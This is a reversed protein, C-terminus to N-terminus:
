AEWVGHTLPKECYVHKGLQLAPLTAFAHTHEPIAVVVADFDKADDFVKRFDVYTKANPHLKSAAGVRREDVDCLAVINESSVSKMDSAAQGGSGICAINLKANASKEQGYGTQRGAIWFGAGVAASNRLFDRRNFRHSM